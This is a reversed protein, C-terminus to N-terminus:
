ALVVELKQLHEEVTQSFVIIDDLYVLCTSWHLGRLVLEMLKQFTSPANSLCHCLRSNTSDLPHASATKERDEEELEFQWYGSALGLTTFWHAGGLTDLTEDIHPIPHVDKKQLM